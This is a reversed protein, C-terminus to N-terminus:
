VLYSIWDFSWKNGLNSYTPTQVPAVERQQYSVTFEVAPGIPPVYRIPTDTMTLSVRASDVDYGAMGPWDIPCKISRAVGPPCPESNAGASGKGWINKGEMESVPQWGDPLQGRPVLYYGSQEQDITQQSL